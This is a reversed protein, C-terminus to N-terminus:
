TRAAAPSRAEYLAREGKTAPKSTIIKNVDQGTLLSYHYYDYCYLIIYIALTARILWHSIFKPCITTVNAYRETESLIKAYRVSSTKKTITRRWGKLSSSLDALTERDQSNLQPLDAGKGKNIVFELFMQLSNLYSKITGPAKKTLNPVVWHLWLESGDEQCLVQIGSGSPDLQKLLNRVQAAHQLSLSIFSRIKLGPNFMSVM